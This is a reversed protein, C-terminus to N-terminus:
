CISKILLFDLGRFAYLEEDVCLSNSPIVLELNSKFDNFIEQMKHFKFVKRTRRTDYDDFSIYRSILQFRDRSMTAAAFSAYHLSKTNWLSEISENSKKTIGLLILIGTFAYIEETSVIVRMFKERSERYKDNGTTQKSTIDIKQNTYKAIKDVIDKSIIQIYFIEISKENKLAPRICTHRFGQKEFVENPNSYWEFPNPNKKNFGGYIITNGIYDHSSSDNILADARARKSESDYAYEEKNEEGSGEEVVEGDENRYEFEVNDVESEDGTDDDSEEKSLINLELLQAATLRLM